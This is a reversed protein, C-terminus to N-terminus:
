FRGGVFLGLGQDSFAPVVAVRSAEDDPELFFLVVATVALAGGIGLLVGGATSKNKGKDELEEVKSMFVEQTQSRDALDHADGLDGQGVGLLVVGTLLVAGAGGAAVWTWLRGGAPEETDGVALETAFMRRFLTAIGDLAQEESAGKLRESERREVKGQRVNILKLTLLVSEGVKDMAGGVMKDVGLAGGIEALCSDDTCGVMQKQQEHDLMRAIDDRGVVQFAGAKALEFALYEEIVKALVPDVGRRAKIETVALKPKAGEEALCPLATLLLASCLLGALLKM